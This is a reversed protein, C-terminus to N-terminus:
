SELMGYSAAAVDWSYCLCTGFVPCLHREMCRESVVSCMFVEIPRM